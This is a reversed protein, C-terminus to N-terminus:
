CETNYKQEIPHHHNASGEFIHRSVDNVLNLIKLKRNRLESYYVKDLIANCHDLHM